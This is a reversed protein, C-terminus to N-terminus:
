KHPTDTILPTNPSAATPPNECVRHKVGDFYSPSDPDHDITVDFCAPQGVESNECYVYWGTPISITRKEGHALAPVTGQSWPTRAGNAATIIVFSTRFPVAAAGNNQVEVLFTSASQRCNGQIRVSNIHLGPHDPIVPVTPQLGGPVRPAVPQSPKGPTKQTVASTNAPKQVTQAATTTATTQATDAFAVTTAALAMAFAMISRTM